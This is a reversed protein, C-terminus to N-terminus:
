SSYRNVQIMLRKTLYYEVIKKKEVDYLRAHVNKEERRSICIKGIKNIYIVSSHNHNLKQKNFERDM